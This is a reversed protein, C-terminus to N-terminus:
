NITKRCLPCCSNNEKICNYCNQCLLEKHNNECPITSSLPMYEFCIICKKNEYLQQLQEKIKEDKVKEIMEETLELKTHELLLSIMEKHSSSLAIEMTDKDIIVDPNHQLFLKVIDVKNKWLAFSLPSFSNFMKEVMCAGAKLLLQCKEYKEDGLLTVIYLPTLDDQGKANVDAGAEILLKMYELSNKYIICEHLLTNKHWFPKNINSKQELLQKFRKKNNTKIAQLLDHAIISDLATTCKQSSPICSFNYLSSQICSDALYDIGYQILLKLAEDSDAAIAIELLYICDKLDERKLTKLICELSNLSHKSKNSSLSVAGNICKIIWNLIYEHSYAYQLCFPYRKIFDNFYNSDCLLNKSARRYINNICKQAYEITETGFFTQMDKETSHISYWGNNNCLIGHGLNKHYFRSKPYQIVAFLRAIANIAIIEVLYNNLKRLESANNMLLFFPNYENKIEFPIYLMGYKEFVTLCNGYRKNAAYFFAAENYHDCSYPDAGHALLWDIVESLDYRVASHLIHNNEKINVGVNLLFQAIECRNILPRKHLSFYNIYAEKDELLVNEFVTNGHVDKANINAGNKHLLQAIKKNYAYHISTNGKESKMNVDVNNKLLTKLIKCNGHTAAIHIAAVKEAFGGCETYITVLSPQDKIKEQVKQANCDKRLLKFFKKEDSYQVVDMSFVNIVYVVIIFFCYLFNNKM